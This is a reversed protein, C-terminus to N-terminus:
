NLCALPFFSFLRFLVFLDLWCPLSHLRVHTSTCSPSSFVSGSPARLFLTRNQTHHLTSISSPAFSSAFPPNATSPSPTSLFVLALALAPLCAPLLRIGPSVPLVCDCYQSQCSALDSTCSLTRLLSLMPHQVRHLCWRVDDTRLDYTAQPLSYPIICYPKFPFFEPGNRSKFRSKCKDLRTFTLDPKM